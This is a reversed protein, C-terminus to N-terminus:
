LKNLYSHIIENLQIARRDFTHERLTKDQGARAIKEREQPHELLWNVKEICEEVSQYTVVERDLEFLLNLNDKKDTVLCTGIGTAEFMRMNSASRTSLDIHNNFTMKSKSLKQFMSLGYLPPNAVAAISPDIYDSLSPRNHRDRYPNFKHVITALSSIQGGLKFLDYILQRIPLSILQLKSPEILDGYVQLNTKEILNKILIERTLHGAQNKFISGVFSFDIDKEQNPEILELVHPSFAHNLHEARHGQRRFEEVLEPINSLILDYSKFINNDNYFSGCWGVILKISSCSSRIEDLLEKTFTIYDDVFLIDPKFSKVQAIVIEELCNKNSTQLANERAWTTQMSRANAIPEWVQYDIKELALTWFNAWGFCDRSIVNYQELFSKTELNPSSYYIKKLYSPYNTTIRILRM